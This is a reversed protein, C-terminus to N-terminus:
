EWLLMASARERPGRERALASRRRFRPDSVGGHHGSAQCDAAVDLLSQAADADRAVDEVRRSDDAPDIRCGLPKDAVNATAPERGDDRGLVAPACALQERPLQEAGGRGCIRAAGQNRGGARAHRHLDARHPEHATFPHDADEPQELFAGVVPGCRWVRM